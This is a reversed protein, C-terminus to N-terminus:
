GTLLEFEEPSLTQRLKGLALLEIQRIREKSLGLEDGIQKLTKFKKKVISGTLGFHYRIIYQERESLNDEIVQELSRRATEIVEIGAPRMRLHESASQGDFISKDAQAAEIPLFKAFDRAIVWSAYTSFRFGKIYDFKEVARMLAINGESILDALNAGSAHRGAVRIVLKLNAEIILNKIREAQNLYQEAQQAARACPKSLSLQKVLGAAAYKLFNYRRFLEAEQQRNLAPIKKIADVFAQWDSDSNAESKDLIGKPMRRVSIPVELIEQCADPLSFEDSVIYDIKISLLRRVRKRDITRYITSGSKNFKAAIQDISTGSEYMNYILSSERSGLLVHPNKFIQKKKSECEVIILRVTEHAKKFHAAVKKIVATRSLDGASGLKQSMEIIDQRM